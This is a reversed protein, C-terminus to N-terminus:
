TEHIEDGTIFDRGLQQLPARGGVRQGLTHQREEIGIMRHSAALALSQPDYAFPQARGAGGIADGLQCGSQDLSALSPPAPRPPSRAGDSAPRPLLTATEPV